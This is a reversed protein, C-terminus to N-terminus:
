QDPNNSKSKSKLLPSENIIRCILANKSINLEQAKKAIKEKLADMDTKKSLRATILNERKIKEMPWLYFM